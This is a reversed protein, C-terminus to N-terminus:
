SYLIRNKFIFFISYLRVNIAVEPIALMWKVKTGDRIANQDAGADKAEQSGSEIIEHMMDLVSVLETEADLRLAVSELMM